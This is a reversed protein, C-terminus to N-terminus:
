HNFIKIFNEAANRVRTEYDDYFIDELNREPFKSLIDALQAPNNPDFYLGNNGLQEINVPLNSATVPVQLSMADEIVTSWGEFLTPQIVGQSHRMLLLQEDRPMVGLFSIQNKLENKDIIENLEQIYPSHDKEPFRGTLVLHIHVDRRKLIALANLLIKHNKHKYFQNSAIFYKSPLKYKNRLEDVSLSSLDGIISVFHFVHIRMLPRIKFFLAFDHAVARSSLALDDSNKLILKIRANRELIKFGSFFEPYYKHQLDAYWSVLKTKSKTKVPYDHLPYLGDLDFNILIKNVFVNKGSLWSKLYGKIVPPFQWEALHLYPYSIKDVYDKLGPRYFLTLEPKMEDDLFNLMRVVNIIYNVGGMWSSSFYFLIGLKLRKKDM